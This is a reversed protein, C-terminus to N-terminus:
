RRPRARRCRGRPRGAQPDPGAGGPRRDAVRGQRRGAVREAGGGGLHAAPLDLGGAGDAAVEAVGRGGGVAHRREQREVGLDLEGGGGAAAAKGEGGEQAVHPQGRAPRVLDQGGDEQGLRREGATGGEELEPRAGVEDDGDGHDRHPQGGRVAADGGGGEGDAGAARHRGAQGRDLGAQDAGGGVRAEGVADRGGLDRRREARDVIDAGGGGVAGLGGGFQEAAGNAARAPAAAHVEVAGGRAEGEVATGDRKVGLGVRRSESRRRSSAPRVPVLTPQSAPSQPAQM